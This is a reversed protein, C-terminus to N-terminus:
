RVIIPWRAFRRGGARPPARVEIALSDGPAEPVIEVDLTEGISVVRRSPEPARLAPPLDAGDKALPRWTAPAGARTVMLIVGSRRVSMNIFRLRYRQGARLTLPPPATMGNLLLQHVEADFGGPSSVLVPLDVAPDRREGPELVLLPGALGADQQREEDVHTHYIFTGARPPTFRVEFSDRPAIMPAIRRGAGSVGPVGDYWSELEIGHWHVATPEALRNVITIRVPEGRTLELPAGVRRGSDPPPEASGRAHAAFGYLPVDRTSGVNERVLLRLERTPAAARAVAVARGTTTDRVAIGLVLGGMAHEPRETHAAHSSSAGTALPLGLAARPAFHEPIHCHFLWNGPREPVWRLAIVHGISMAETVALRPVGDRYVTDATGDGRSEVHFYFGHLHMPHLDATANIVRWRVSDGVAYALRETNPWARGNVVALVRHRRVAARGVTDAWMGLVFVRDPPSGGPPDVVIAGTLQADERTRLELPRGTSTGWYYYTGPAELRFAVARSAGPALVLPTPADDPTAAGPTAARDHLGHVRLTDALANRLVVSVTTGARVRVLPGPISADRGVEAFAAVVAGPAGDGDPHWTALRAELRLTLTDRRLAGSPARNDNPRARAPAAPPPLPAAVALLALGAVLTARM